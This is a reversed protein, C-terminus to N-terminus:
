GPPAIPERFPHLFDFSMSSALLRDIAAALEQPKLWPYPLDRQVGDLLNASSDSIRAMRAIFIHMADAQLAGDENRRFHWRYYGKGLRLAGTDIQRMAVLWPLRSIRDDERPPADCVYYTRCREFQTGFDSVLTRAIADVGRVESPFSIENTAIGYTLVADRSYIDAMLAPRTLDKAEVYRELLERASACAKGAREAAAM